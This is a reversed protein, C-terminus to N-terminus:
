EDDGGEDLHNPIDLAFQGLDPLPIGEDLGELWPNIDQQSIRLQPAVQKHGGPFIINLLSLCMAFEDGEVDDGELFEWIDMGDPPAFAMGIMKGEDDESITTTEGEAIATGNVTLQNQDFTITIM